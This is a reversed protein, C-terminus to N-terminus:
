FRRGNDENCKDSKTLCGSGKEQFRKKKISDDNLLRANGLIVFWGVYVLSLHSFSLDIRKWIRSFSVNKSFM